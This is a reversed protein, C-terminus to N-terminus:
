LKRNRLNIPSLTQPKLKPSLTQLKPNLAGQFASCSLLKPNCVSPMPYIDSLAKRALLATIEREALQMRPLVGFAQFTTMGSGLIM